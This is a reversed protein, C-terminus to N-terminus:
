SADWKITFKNANCTMSAKHLVSIALYLYMTCDPSSMLYNIINYVYQATSIRRLIATQLKCLSCELESAVLLAIILGVFHFYSFFIFINHCLYILQKIYCMDCLTWIMEM